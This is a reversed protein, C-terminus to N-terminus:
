FETESLPEAESKNQTLSIKIQAPKVGSQIIKEELKFPQMRMLKGSNLERYRVDYTGSPFKRANFQGRARVFIARVPQPQGPGLLFIKVFVDVDNKSNDITIISHGNNLTIPYGVVYDSIKPWPTGNDAYRSRAHKSKKPEPASVTKPKPPNKITPQTIKPQSDVKKPPPNSPALTAVPETKIPPPLIVVPEVPKQSLSEALFFDKCSKNFYYCYPTFAILGTVILIVGIQLWFSRNFSEWVKKYDKESEYVRKTLAVVSRMERQLQDREEKLEPNNRPNFDKIFDLADKSLAYAAEREKLEYFAKAQHALISANIEAPQRGGAL